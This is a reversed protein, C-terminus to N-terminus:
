KATADLIVVSEPYVIPIGTEIVEAFESFEVQAGKTLEEIKAPQRKGSVVKELKTKKSFFLLVEGKPFDKHKIGNLKCEAVADTKKRPELKMASVVVGRPAAGKEVEGARAATELRSGPVLLVGVTLSICFRLAPSM